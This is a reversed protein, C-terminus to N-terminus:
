KILLGAYVMYNVNGLQSLFMIEALLCVYASYRGLTQIDDMSEVHKVEDAM